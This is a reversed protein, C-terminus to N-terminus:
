RVVQSEKALGQPLGERAPPNVTGGEEGETEQPPIPSTRHGSYCGRWPLSCSFCGGLLLLRHKAHFRLRNVEM